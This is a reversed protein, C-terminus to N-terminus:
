PRHHRMSENRFQSEPIAKLTPAPTDPSVHRVLAGEGFTIDFYLELSVGTYVVFRRLTPPEIMGATGGATSSM